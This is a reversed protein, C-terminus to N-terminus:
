EDAAAHSLVNVVVGGPGEVWFRRVGWPEDRLPYVVKYGRALADAHARDVDDVEVSIAPQPGLDDRIVSVQATPNGPAAYTAIWGLDMATDLGLFEGFFERGMDPRGTTVNPVIRKATM